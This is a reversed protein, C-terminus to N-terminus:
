HLEEDIPYPLGRRAHAASDTVWCRVERAM